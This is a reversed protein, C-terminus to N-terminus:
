SRPTPGQGGAGGSLVRGRRRAGAGHILEALRPRDRCPFAKKAGRWNTFIALIVTVAATGATAGILANTRTTGQLAGEQYLCRLEDGPRRMAKVAAAGPNNQTDVGSWVTTAGLGM